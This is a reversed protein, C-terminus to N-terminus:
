RRPSRSRAAWEASARRSSWGARRPRRRLGEGRRRVDRLNGPRHGPQRHLDLLGRDDARVHDPGLGELRRFEDGTAWAPVLMANSILVRPADEHTEFVGVAKGSQVLMTQDGRLRKLTAVITDFAEWSRAARGTGGYVILEEPKEAVDPDLNNELM